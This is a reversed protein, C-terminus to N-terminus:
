MGVTGIGVTVHLTSERWTIRPTSHAGLDRNTCGRRTNVIISLYIFTLTALYTQRRLEIGFETRRGIRAHMIMEYGLGLGLM